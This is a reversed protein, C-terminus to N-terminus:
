AHEGIEPYDAQYVRNRPFKLCLCTLGNPCTGNAQVTGNKSRRCHRDPIALNEEIRRLGDLRSENAAANYFSGVEYCKDLDDLSIGASSALGEVDVCRDSLPGIVNVGIVAYIFIMLGYFIAVNALHKVKLYRTFERLM